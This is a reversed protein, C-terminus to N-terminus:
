VGQSQAERELLTRKRDVGWRYGSLKGNSSIVRHCPIAVALHNSACAQAVARVAKPSGLRQAVEAYSVTSGSPITQLIQWVRQQFATGQIDLPLDLGRQPTEVFAIVQEIWRTFVADAQEFQAQPFRQQLQEILEKDRDGFEITCIGRETAAVLVWGLFCARVAFRITIGSAGHKYQTPTMGLMQTAGTYFHSSATFGADYIAQTVSTEQHLEDRVRRTRQAITYQKPTVGVVQKFVRQFHYQSLGAATALQKLSLPTEASEILKCIQAITEVQQHQPSITHPQCRKCPRFGAQEAAACTQFFLINDRNPLRSACIPRCYVGTTKVAYLFAGDAQPNRQILAAWRQTNTSFELVATDPM